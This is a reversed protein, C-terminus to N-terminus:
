IGDHRQTAEVITNKARKRTDSRNRDAPPCERTHIATPISRTGSILFNNKRGYTQMVSSTNRRDFFVDDTLSIGASKVVVFTKSNGNTISNVNKAM